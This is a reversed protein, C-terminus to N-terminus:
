RSRLFRAGLREFRFSFAINDKCVVALESGAQKM